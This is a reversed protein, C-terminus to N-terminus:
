IIISHILLLLSHNKDPNPTKKNVITLPITLYINELFFLLLVILM